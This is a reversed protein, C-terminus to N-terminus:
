EFGDQFIRDGGMVYIHVAYPGFDDTIVGAVIPLVRAEGYVTATAAAGIGGVSITRGSHATASLNLAFVYNGDAASRRALEIPAAATASFGPPDLAGQLVDALRTILADQQTLESAVDAPTTDWEFSPTVQEPFYSLGRAGHIIAEWVEARVEAPTPGRTTDTTDFNSTEIFAFVPKEGAISKLHDVMQGILGLNDQDGDNVPYRDASIWDAGQAYKRYWPDGSEGTHLDYQNLGGVFNIFVARDAAVGKWAQYQNQIDTYPVQSYIGDPEDPQAWALLLAENADDAPHPRPERIMHLGLSNAQAISGELDFGIGVMTNAGRSKWKQYDSSPPVWVGIPFFGDLFLGSQTANAQMPRSAAAAHAVVLVSVFVASLRKAMRMTAVGEGFNQAALIVLPCRAFRSGPATEM